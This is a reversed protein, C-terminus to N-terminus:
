RVTEGQPLAAAFLVLLGVVLCVYSARDTLVFELPDDRRSRSTFQMWLHSVWFYLIICLLWLYAPTRYLLTIEPQAIYMALVLVSMLSSGYGMQRIMDADKAFYGRGPVAHQDDGTLHSLEGFRKACALGVFFFLAFAILWATPTITLAASGIVIRNCYLLGLWMVDLIPTAKVRVTYWLSALVQGIMLWAAAGGIWAVGAMWGAALVAISMWALPVPLAGAALSRFQKVPHQRDADLDRLDNCLYIMSSGMCLTVFVRAATLWAHQDGWRHAALLPVLCLLNKIWQQVRLARMWPLVGSSAQSVVDLRIGDKVALAIVSPKVNVAYALRACKWVPLDARANGIYDFGAVGFTEVLLESKRTATLNRGPISGMGGAFTSDAAVWANVLGQPAGSVLYVPRQASERRAWEVVDANRPLHRLDIPATQWLAAKLTERGKALWRLVRFVSWPSRLLFHSLMDWTTDSRVLTGDLDVCLPVTPTDHMAHSM